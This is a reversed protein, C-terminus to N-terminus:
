ANHPFMGTLFEQEIKIAETVVCKVVDPRPQHKLHSFLLYAFDTCMGEHRSILKDSFTLGPMFSRKKLWFISAFSSSFFIDEVAAFSILCEGFTSWEDLIWWLAWDVKCKVCPITDIIDFLYKHQVPDKIYTNILISYMESHINEM